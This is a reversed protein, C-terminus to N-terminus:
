PTQTLNDGSPPLSTSFPFVSLFRSILQMSVRKSQDQGFLPQHWQIAFPSGCAECYQCTSVSLSHHFVDIYVCFIGSLPHFVLACVSISYIMRPFCYEEEF